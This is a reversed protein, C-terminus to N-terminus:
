TIQDARSVTRAPEPESLLLLLRVESSSVVLLLALQRCLHAMMGARPGAEDSSMIRAM